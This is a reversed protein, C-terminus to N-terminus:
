RVGEGFAVGSLGGSFVGGAAGQGKINGNGGVAFQVAKARSSALGGFLYGTDTREAMEAILEAVDPTAADAHV